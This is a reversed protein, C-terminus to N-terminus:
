NPSFLDITIASKTGSFFARYTDVGTTLVFGKSYLILKLKYFHSFYCRQYRRASRIFFDQITSISRRGTVSYRYTSIVPLCLTGLCAESGIAVHLFGVRKCVVDMPFPNQSSIVPSKVYLSVITSLVSM